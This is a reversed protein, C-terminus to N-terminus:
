APFGSDIWQKFLTIRQATWPGRPLRPMDKQSVEDWIATQDKVAQYHVLDVGHSDMHNIDMPSFLQSIGNAWTLGNTQFSVPYAIRSLAASAGNLAVKLSQSARTDGAVSDCAAAIEDLRERFYAWASTKHPLLAM